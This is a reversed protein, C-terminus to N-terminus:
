RDSELQALRRASAAARSAIVWAHALLLAASIGYAGWVFGAYPTMDLDPM